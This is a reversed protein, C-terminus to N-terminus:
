CPTASGPGPTRSANISSHPLLRWSLALPAAHNGAGGKCLEQTLLERRHAVDCHSAHEALSADEAVSHHQAHHRLIGEIDSDIILVSRRELLGLGKRREVVLVLM